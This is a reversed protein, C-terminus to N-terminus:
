RRGMVEAISQLKPKVVVEEYEAIFTNGEMKGVWKYCGTAGWWWSYFAVNNGNAVGRCAGDLPGGRLQVHQM